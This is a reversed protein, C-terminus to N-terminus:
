EVELHYFVHWVIEYPDTVSFSQAGWYEDELDRFLDCTNKLKRYLNKFEKETYVNLCFQINKGVEQIHDDLQDNIFMTTEGIEIQAHALRDKFPSEEYGPMDGMMVLNGKVKADFVNKYFEVAELAKYLTLTAVVNM